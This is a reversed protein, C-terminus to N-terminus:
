EDLWDRPFVWIDHERIFAIVEDATPRMAFMEDDTLPRLKKEKRRKNEARIKREYAETYNRLKKPAEACLFGHRNCWMEYTTTSDKSIKAEKNNFVFRIDLEPCSAKIALQKKRDATTFRGKTEVIIGNPLVFDPLYLRNEAPQVYRAKKSTPEYEFDYGQAVLGLASTRELGSRYGEEVGRYDNYARHLRPNNQGTSTM